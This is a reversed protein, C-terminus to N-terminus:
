DIEDILNNKKKNKTTIPREIKHQYISDLILQITNDGLKLNPNSSRLKSIYDDDRLKNININKNKITHMSNVLQEKETKEDNASINNASKPQQLMKQKKVIKNHLNIIMGECLGKDAVTFNTHSTILSIDYNITTISKIAFMNCFELQSIVAIKAFNKNSAYTSLDLNTARGFKIINVKNKTSTKIVIHLDQCRRECCEIILIDNTKQELEDFLDKMIDYLPKYDDLVQDYLTVLMKALIDVSKDPINIGATDFAETILMSNMKQLRIYRDMKIYKKVSKHTKRDTAFRILYNSFVNTFRYIAVGVEITNTITGIIIDKTTPPQMNKEEIVENKNSVVLELENQAIDIKQRFVSRIKGLVKSIIEGIYNVLMGVFKTIKHIM